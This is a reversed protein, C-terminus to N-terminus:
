NRGLKKVLLAINMPHIKSEITALQWIHQFGSNSFYWITKAEEDIFRKM